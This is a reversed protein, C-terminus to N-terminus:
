HADFLQPVVPLPFQQAAAVHMVPTHPAVAHRTAVPAQLYVALPVAHALVQVPEISVGLTQLPLPLQTAPVGAAQGLLRAHLAAM